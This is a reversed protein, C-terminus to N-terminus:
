LFFILSLSCLFNCSSHFCFCLVKLEMFNNSVLVTVLASSSFNIAVSLTVMQFFIILAHFFTYLLAVLSLMACSLIEKRQRTEMMNSISENLVEFVENGFNGFIKDVVELLNFIVYIKITAQVKLGHYAAGFDFFSMLYLTVFIIAYKLVFGVDKPSFQGRWFARPICLLVRVPAVSFLYLLHDLLFMFCVFLLKELEVPVTFFNYIEARANFPSSYSEDGSFDRWLFSFVSSNNGSGVDLQQWFFLSQFFFSGVFWM